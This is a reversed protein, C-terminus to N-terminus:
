VYDSDQGGSKIKTRHKRGPRPYIEGGREIQHFLVIPPVDDGEEAAKLGTHSHRLSEVIGLANCWAHVEVHFIGVRQATIFPIENRYRELVVNGALQTTRQNSQPAGHACNQQYRAHVKWDAAPERRRAHWLIQRGHRM